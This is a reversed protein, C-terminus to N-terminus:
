QQGPRELGCKCFWGSLNIDGEWRVRWNRYEHQHEPEVPAPSATAVPQVLRELRQYQQEFQQELQEFLEQKFQEFGARFTVPGTDAPDTRASQVLSHRVTHDGM